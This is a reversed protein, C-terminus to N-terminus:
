NLKVFLDIIVLKYFTYEYCCLLINYSGELHLEYVGLIIYVWFIGEM